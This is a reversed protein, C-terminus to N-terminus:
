SLLGGNVVARYEAIVDCVRAVGAAGGAITLRIKKGVIHQYNDSSSMPSTPLSHLPLYLVLGRDLGFGNIGGAEVGYGNAAQRGLGNINTSLMGKGNVAIPM